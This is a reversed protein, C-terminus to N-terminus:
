SITGELRYSALLLNRSRNLRASKFNFTLGSITIRSFVEAERAYAVYIASGHIRSVTVGRALPFPTKAKLM